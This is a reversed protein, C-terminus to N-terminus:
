RAVAARREHGAAARRDMALTRADEDEDEEHEVALDDFLWQQSRHQDFERVLELESSAEGYHQVVSAFTGVQFDHPVREFKPRDADDRVVAGEDDVKPERHALEHDLLAEQQPRTAMQWWDADISIQLDAVGLKRYKLPTNEIKARIKLGRDMMAPRDSEEDAWYMLIAVTTGCDALGQHYRSMVEQTVEQAEDVLPGQTQFSAM